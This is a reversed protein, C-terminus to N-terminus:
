KPAYKEEKTLELKDEFYWQNKYRVAGFYFHKYTGNALKAHMLFSDYDPEPSDYKYLLVFSLDAWNIGYQKSLDVMAKFNATYRPLFVKEYTSEAQAMVSDIDQDPDSETVNKAISKVAVNQPLLQAKFAALDDSAISSTLAEGLAEKTVSQARVSSIMVALVLSLYVLPLSRKRKM